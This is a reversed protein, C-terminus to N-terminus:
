AIVIKRFSKIEENEDLNYHQSAYTLHSLDFGFEEFLADSTKSMEVAQIEAQAQPSTTFKLSQLKRFMEMDRRFKFKSAKIIDAESQTVEKMELAKRVENDQKLLEARKDKDEMYSKYSLNYNALELEIWECAKKSMAQMIKQYQM